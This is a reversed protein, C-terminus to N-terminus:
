REHERVEEGRRTDSSDRPTATGGYTGTQPQVYANAAGHTYVLEGGSQGVRYGAGVLGVAGITAVIRAARGVVGGALGVGAVVFVVGSLVLFLEAAEEHGHIAGQRLVREVRDEQAEGTKLAVFASLALAGALLAPLLWARRPAAGRRIMWLGGAAVLPLLVAFVIPFHVVAPHLPNPIV